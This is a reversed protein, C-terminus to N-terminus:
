DWRNKDAIAMANLVEDMNSVEHEVLGDIFVSGDKGSKVSYKKSLFANQYEKEWTKLDDWTTTISFVSQQINGVIKQQIRGNWKLEPFIDTKGQLFLESAITEVEEMKLIFDCQVEIM